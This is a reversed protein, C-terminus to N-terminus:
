HSYLNIRHKKIRLLVVIAVLIQTYVLVKQYITKIQLKEESSFDVIQNGFFFSIVIRILLILTLVVLIYFIVPYQERDIFLVLMIMSIVFSYYALMGFWIHYKFHIDVPFVGILAYGIGSLIGLFILLRRIRQNNILFSVLYFFLFVGIGILCMSLSYFFWFPNPSGNFFHTRGLDSLYNLDFAYSISQHNLTNGGEYLYMLVLTIFIYQVLIFITIDILNRKLFSM